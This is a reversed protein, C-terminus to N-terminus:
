ASGRDKEGEDKYAYIMTNEDLVSQRTIRRFEGEEGRERMNEIEFMRYGLGALMSVIEGASTGMRPLTGPHLELLLKPGSDRLIRGMGKLVLMEAGEVDIKYVDPLIGSRDFFDDLAIAPVGAEECHENEGVPRALSYNGATKRSTYKTIFGNSDTVAAHVPVVNALRNMSINKKLVALNGENMEFAYVTGDRMIKSAFCTFYGINAGVDAFCRSTKLVDALLKTVKEEHKRGCQFQRAFFMRSVDEDNSFEVTTSNVELIVKGDQTSAPKHNVAPM